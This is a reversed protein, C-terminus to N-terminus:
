FEIHPIDRQAKEYDEPTGIDLWYDQIAFHGVTYETDILERMLDTAHYAQESPVLSLLQRKILYIGANAYYTYTPKEAFGTIKDGETELIAYPVPVEYPISAVMMDAEQALFAAMMAGLDINTLLDANMVLVVEEKFDDIKAIPGFTGLPSDERIYSIKLGSSEGNGFAEEFQDALYGVSLHVHKVGYKALRDFTHAVIPKGALPLLPKPVTDTHPRLRTGRGGAIVVAELPLISQRTNLAIKKNSRLTRM